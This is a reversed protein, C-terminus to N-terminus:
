PTDAERGVCGSDAAARLARRVRADIWHMAREVGLAGFVKQRIYDILVCTLYTLLVWSVLYAVLSPENAYDATDLLRSYLVSRVMRNDSILYVGFSMPALGLIARRFVGERIDLSKAFLFLALSAALVTPSSYWYLRDLSGSLVPGAATVGSAIFFLLAAAGPSLGRRNHRRVYSALVYLYVFWFVSYGHRTDIVSSYDLPLFPLVVFWAPMLASLLVVLIRHHFPTLTDLGRNLFPSLLLLAVYATAFWYRNFLLPLASRLTEISSLDVVGIVGLVVYIGVSYFLVQLWIRAVRSFKFPKGSAFYAGVLVFCNVAVVSVADIGWVIHANVTGAEAGARLGGHVLFHHTVILIMALVRLLEFGVERRPHSM